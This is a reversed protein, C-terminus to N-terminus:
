FYALVLVIEFNKTNVSTRPTVEFVRVEDLGDLIVLLKRPANNSQLLGLYQEEELYKLLAREVFNSSLDEVQTLNM